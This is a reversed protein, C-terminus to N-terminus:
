TRQVQFDGAAMWARWNKELMTIGGPYAKGLAVTASFPKCFHQRTQEITAQLALKGPTHTMLFHVLSWTIAYNRHRDEAYWTSPDIALYAQLRPLRTSRLLRIHARNPYVTGSQGKVQLMEFYEALGEGSMFKPMYKASRM